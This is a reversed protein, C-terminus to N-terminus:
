YAEFYLQNTSNLEKGQFDMCPFFQCFHASNDESGRGDQSVDKM